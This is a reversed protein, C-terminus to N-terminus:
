LQQAPKYGYQAALEEQRARLMSWSFYIGPFEEIEVMINAETTEIDEEGNPVYTNTDHVASVTAVGGLITRLISKMGDIYILNGIEPREVAGVPVHQNSESQKDTVTEEEDEVTPTEQTVIHRYRDANRAKMGGNMEAIIEDVSQTEDENADYNTLIERYAGIGTISHEQAFNGEGSFISVEDANLGLTNLVDNMSALANKTEFIEIGNKVIRYSTSSTIFVETM